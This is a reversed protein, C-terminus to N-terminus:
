LDEIFEALYESKFFKEDYYAKVKKKWEANRKSVCNWKLHTVNLSCQDGRVIAHEYLEHFKSNKYKPTTIFIMQSDLKGAQTPFVSMMFNNFDKDKVHAAEDVVVLDLARGRVSNAQCNGIIIRTNNAFQVCEKTWVKKDLQLSKPLHIYMERITHLIEIAAANKYSILGICKNDHLLAYWLIYAAIMATKGVQRPAVVIHNPRKTGLTNRFKQLQKRQWAYPKFTAFGESTLIQCYKLFKSPDNRIAKIENIFETATMDDLYKKKSM